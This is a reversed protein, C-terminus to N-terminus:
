YIGRLETPTLINSGSLCAMANYLCNGDGVVDVPIMNEVDSSTHKLYLKAEQDIRHILPNFHTIPVFQIPVLLWEM